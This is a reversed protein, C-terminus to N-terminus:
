GFSLGIVAVLAVATCWGVSVWAPLAPAVPDVAIASPTLYFLEAPIMPLVGEESEATVCFVRENPHLTTGDGEARCPVTSWSM